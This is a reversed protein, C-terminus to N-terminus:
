SGIGSFAAYATALCADEARGGVEPDGNLQGREIPPSFSRLDQRAVGRAFKSLYLTASRLPLREHDMRIEHFRFEATTAGSPRPWRSSARAANTHSRPEQRSAGKGARQERGSASAVPHLGIPARGRERPAPGATRGRFIISTGRNRGSGHAPAPSAACRLPGGTLQHVASRKDM